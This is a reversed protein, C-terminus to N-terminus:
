EMKSIRIQEIKPGKMRTVTLQLDAIQLQEGEGPIRQLHFLILGAVTEYEDGLPLSLGLRENVEDVRMQADVEVTREDVRIVPEEVAGLEDSLEGVIEEVLAELTVIGATGGYEDLVVAMQNHTARMRSLLMGVGLTEPVFLAPRSLTGVPVSVQSLDQALARLVDKVAVIGVTNDLAEEYVPFRAHSSDSFLGLLDKVPASREIGVVDNRPVMVERVQRDGFQFVKQLLKEQAPEIAGSEQSERVILKLEDLNYVTRHGAIPEVRILRLVLSTTGDLLAVLPRFIAIFASMPRSISLAAREAHRVAITKPTQEGLVITVFTVLAFALVTGITIAAAMSWRGLLLELPPQLVAAVTAEGIWGLGLSAMTIGLQSAAITRDPNGMLKQAMRAAPHGEAVLQAMRTRRTAVVSFEVAVFFGNLAVLGLVALLKLVIVGASM